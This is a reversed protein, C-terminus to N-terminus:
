EYYSLKEIEGYIPNTQLRGQIIIRYVTKVIDYLLCLPLHGYASMYHLVVIDWHRLECHM